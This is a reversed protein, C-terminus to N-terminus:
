KKLSHILGSLLKSVQELQNQVSNLENDEAFGLKEALQMYTELEMISGRAISLHNLFVKLHSSGHGEAINAPVSVGSRRIQQTMGLKEAEPFTKTIQYISVVLEM